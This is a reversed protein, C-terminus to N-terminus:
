SGCIQTFEGLVQLCLLFEEGGLLYSGASCDVVGPKM